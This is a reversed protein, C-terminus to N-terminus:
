LVAKYIDHLVEKGNNYRGTHKSIRVNKFKDRVVIKDYKALDHAANIAQEDVDFHVSVLYSPTKGETFIIVHTCSKGSMSKLLKKTNM